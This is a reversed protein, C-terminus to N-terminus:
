SSSRRATLAKSRNDSNAVFWPDLQTTTPTPAYHSTTIDYLILSALLLKPNGQSGRSSSRVDIQKM